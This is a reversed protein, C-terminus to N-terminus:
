NLPYEFSVTTKSLVRVRNSSGIFRKSDIQGDKYVDYFIM